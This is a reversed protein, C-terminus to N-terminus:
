NGRRGILLCGHGHIQVGECSIHGGPPTVQVGIRLEAELLLAGAGEHGGFQPLEAEIFNGFAHTTGPDDAREFAAAAVPGDREPGIHVGQADGFLPRLVVARLIGARHMGAAMVTVRSHQESRCFEKGLFTPEVTGHAKDELRRFFPALTRESHQGVPQRLAERELLDVTQVVHRAQM